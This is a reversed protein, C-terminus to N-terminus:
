IRHAKDYVPVAARAGGRLGLVLDMVNSGSPGTVLLDGSARLFSGADARRLCDGADLGHRQGRAVSGGDVLAGAAVGPGDGGDTGAALLYLDDRGAMAMAAALALHQCRGGEGPEAPLVVTTEGSWIQLVGCEGADLSAALMRGAAAADGDLLREHVTAALGQGRAARQAAARAWGAGAIVHAPLRPLRAAPPTEAQELLALLWPPLSADPRAAFSAPAILPGSGIVGAEDGPVDSLLIQRVRTGRPLAHRLGGGKIRSLRMRVRNIEDIALGSGVLWRHARQLDAFAVGARPAEVLASAGGSLLFLLIQRAPTAAVFDLLAAGARLSSEDPLPHASELATTRPPLADDLYGYKTIILAASMRGGLAAHAGRAMAAAAKGVAAVRVEGDPDLPHAALVEQVLRGGEVAALAQRYVELLAARPASV